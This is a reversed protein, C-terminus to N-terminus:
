LFVEPAQEKLSIFGSEACIVHDLLEIGIQQGAQAIRRTALLDAQSPTPDGSPHNHALVLHSANQLIAPRFVERPHVLSATATGITVTERTLQCNRVTLYFVVLHEQPLLILDQCAQYIKTPTSLEPRVTQQALLHSLQISAVISMAKVQGVGALAALTSVTVKETVMVQAVQHSVMMLDYSSSGSRLILAILEDLSLAEVGEQLFRERPKRLSPLQHLPTM